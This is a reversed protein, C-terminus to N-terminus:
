IYKHKIINFLNEKIQFTEFTEDESLEGEFDGGFEADMMM